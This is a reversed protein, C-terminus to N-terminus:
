RWNCAFQTGVFYESLLTKLGAKKGFSVFYAFRSPKLWFM